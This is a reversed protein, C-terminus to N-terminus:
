GPDVKKDGCNAPKPPLDVSADAGPADAPSADSEAGDAAADDTQVIPAGDADGADTQVSSSDTGGSGGTGGTGTRSADFRPRDPPAGGGCGAALVLLAATALTWCRAAARGQPRFERKTFSM